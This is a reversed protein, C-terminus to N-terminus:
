LVKEVILEKREDKMLIAQRIRAEAIKAEDSSVAHISALIDGKNVKGERAINSLGVAHNIRDNPHSRGGGLNVVTMGLQYADFGFLDVDDQAYINQIFQAMPLAARIQKLKGVAGQAHCMMEFKEYAKGSTIAGDIRANVETENAENDTAAILNMCIERSLKYLPLEMHQGELIEIIEKIELANGASQALPINMDSIIATTQCGLENAVDVLLRALARGNEVTKMFAGRGVKIDLILNDLGAALKKSLISSTILDLSPVTGSIDRIAYLRQDAPVLEKSQGVIFCGLNRLQSEMDAFSLQTSFGMISELKDLTGGTHGLGRGSIMPVYYGLSALIPAILFSTADGVGGTSHKDVVPGAVDWSLVKGSDRMSRTLDVTQERSMGKCLVAMAFAAIQADNADGNCIASVFDDIDAASIMEADRVRGIFEAIYLKHMEVM